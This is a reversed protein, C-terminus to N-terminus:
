SDGDCTRATPNATLNVMLRYKTLGVLPFVLVSLLFVFKLYKSALQLDKLSYPLSIFRQSLVLM